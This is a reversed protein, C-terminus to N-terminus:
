TKRSCVLDVHERRVLDPLVAAIEYVAAGILVRMGADLDERYRIRISARVTSTVADAKIAESGSLHRVNAWVSAVPLWAGPIPQGWADRVEGRKEISIRTNLQGASLSM